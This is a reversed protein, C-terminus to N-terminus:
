SSSMTSWLATTQRPTLLRNCHILNPAPLLWMTQVHRHQVVLRGLKREELDSSYRQDIKELRDLLPNKYVKYLDTSLVGGQRVGQQIEFQESLCGDWKVITRANTHLSNILNWHTGEIGLHYVKRLLSTHNVVDFASKADLFAIYTPKKSGKNNRIYEELVLLCNVPSSGETFGLQLRNQKEATAPKIREESELIKAITPTITIGRYNKADLNSGKRKFVSTLVGLKMCDPVRGMEMMANFLSM